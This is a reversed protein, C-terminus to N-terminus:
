DKGDRKREDFIVVDGKNAKNISSLFSRAEQAYKDEINAARIYTYACIPKRNEKVEKGDFEAILYYRLRKTM